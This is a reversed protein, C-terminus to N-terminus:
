IFASRRKGRERIGLVARAGGLCPAAPLAPGSSKSPLPVPIAPLPPGRPSPDALRRRGAWGRGEKGRPHRPGQVNAARVAGRGVRLGVGRGCHQLRQQVCQGPYVPDEAILGPRSPLSAQSPSFNPCHPQFGSGLGSIPTNKKSGSSGEEGLQRHFNRPLRPASGSGM